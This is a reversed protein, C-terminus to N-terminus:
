RSVEIEVHAGHRIRPLPGNAATRGPQEVLSLLHRPSAAVEAYNKAVGRADRTELAWLMESVGHCATSERLELMVVVEVLDRRSRQHPVNDVEFRWEAEHTTKDLTCGEEDGSQNLPFIVQSAFKGGEELVANITDADIEAHSPLAKLEEPVNLVEHLLFQMDRLPPTYQAM